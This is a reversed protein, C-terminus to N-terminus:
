KADRVLRLSLCQAARDISERYVGDNAFTLKRYFYYEGDKEEDRTSTWYFAWVSMFRWGTTGMITNATYYGGLLLDLDCRNDYYSLMNPAINGRWERGASEAASMGLHQELKRWDDDTPIRWGDPVAAVAAFYNYLRGWRKVDVGAGDTRSDYSHYVNCATEDSTSQYRFNEAMWETDGYRVWKYVEGDRADTWTGDASAPVKAPMKGDDKSCAIFSASLVM